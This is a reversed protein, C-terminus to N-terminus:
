LGPFLQLAARDRSDFYQGPFRLNVTVTLGDGDADENAASTGFADSDWRWVIAGASDTGLRPTELHDTHLFTVGSTTVQALPRDDLWVYTALPAGDASSEALLRGQLDYHYVVTGSATVKRTRQGPADYHYAALEAGAETVRTLRGAPNYTFGRADRATLNGAVDLGVPAGGIAALRNSAPEYSYNRTGDALRNGNADYTFEAGALDTTETTLRNLVDYAFAGGGIGATRGTLNGNADYSYERSDVGGLTQATLRGQLDYARTETLGNGFTLGTLLGDARYAIGDALLTRTEGAVLEVKTIRGLADRSYEVRRGSPDTLALLRDGADYAYVTTYTVGAETRNHQM